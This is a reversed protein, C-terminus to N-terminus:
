GIMDHDNADIDRHMLAESLAAELKSEQVVSVYVIHVGERKAEAVSEKLHALFEEYSM